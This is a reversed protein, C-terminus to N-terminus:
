KLNPEAESQCCSTQNTNWTIESFPGLETRSETFHKQSSVAKASESWPSMYLIPQSDFTKNKM